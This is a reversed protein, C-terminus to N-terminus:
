IFVHRLGSYKNLYIFLIVKRELATLGEKRRSRLERYLMQRDAFLPVSSVGDGRLNEQFVYKLLDTRQYLPASLVDESM